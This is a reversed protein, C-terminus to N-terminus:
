GLINGLNLVYYTYMHTYEYYQNSINLSIIYLNELYQDWHLIQALQGM